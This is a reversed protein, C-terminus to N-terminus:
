KNKKNLYKKRLWDFSYKGAVGLFGCVGATLGAEFLKAWFSADIFLISGSMLKWIGIVASTIFVILKEMGSHHEMTKMNTHM